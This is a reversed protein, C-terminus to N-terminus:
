IPARVFGAAHAMPRFMPSPSSSCTTALSNEKTRRRWIRDAHIGARATQRPFHGQRRNGTHTLPSCNRYNHGSDKDVFYGYARQLREIQNLDELRTIRAELADLREVASQAFLPSSGTCHWPSHSTRTKVMYKKMKMAGIRQRRGAPSEYATRRDGSPQLQRRFITVPLSRYVATPPKDPPFLASQGKM